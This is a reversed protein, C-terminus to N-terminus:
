TPALIPYQFTCALIVLAIMSKITNKEISSPQNEILKSNKKHLIALFPLPLLLLVVFYWNSLMTAIAINAFELVKGTNEASYVTYYTKMIQFYILQTLFLLTLFLTLIWRIIKQVKCSRIFQILIAFLFAFFTDFILIFAIGISFLNSHNILRIISEFYFLLGMWYIVEKFESLKMKVKGLFAHHEM